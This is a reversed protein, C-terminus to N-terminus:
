HEQKADKNRDEKIKERSQKKCLHMYDAVAKFLTSKTAWLVGVIAMSAAIEACFGVWFAGWDWKM